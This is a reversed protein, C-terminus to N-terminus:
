NEEFTKTVKTSIVGNKEENKKVFARLEPHDSVKEAV